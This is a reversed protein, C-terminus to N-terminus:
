AKEGALPLFVYRLGRVYAEFIGSCHGEDEIIRFACALAGHQRSVLREHFRTVGDVHAAYEKGGVSLFLRGGLTKKTAAFAEELGFIWDKGLTVAPTAAIYGQFLRPATYMAFLTFVGGLSSGALVRFGPDARYEREVFPITEQEITRLFEAARGSSEPADDTPVPSLENWRLKDYDLNEGVYGLGVVIFEPAARDFFLLDRMKAIMPFSWYGDTVYVVPYRRTTAEGYSPPLGVHLQHRNLGSKEPLVRLESREIRHAPHSPM